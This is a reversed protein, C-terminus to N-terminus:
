PEAVVVTGVSVRDYLDIIHENLMRICGYSAASGISARMHAATGHIAIESLNLELAREGMPNNPAGGAILHPIAPNDQLVSAPAMWAPQVYKKKIFTEGRWSKGTKGVAVPYRIAQGHGITLYLRREKERIIIMGVRYDESFPVIAISPLEPNPAPLSKIAAHSAPVFLLCLAYASLLRSLFPQM